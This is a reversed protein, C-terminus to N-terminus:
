RFSYCRLLIIYVCFTLKVKKLNWDFFVSCRGLDDSLKSLAFFLLFMPAFIKCIM